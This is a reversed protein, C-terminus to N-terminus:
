RKSRMRIKESCILLLTFNREIASIKCDPKQIDMCVDAQEANGGSCSFGEEVLCNRECGDNTENTGDDCQFQGMNLGDGCIELCDDGTNVPNLYGPIDKCEVCSSGQQKHMEPCSTCSSSSADSCTACSDHCAHCEGDTLNRYEREVCELKLCTTAAM